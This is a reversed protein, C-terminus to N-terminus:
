PKKKEPKDEKGRLLGQLIDDVKEGSTKKIAQEVLAKIDVGTLDLKPKERTGVIPIAVRSGTLHRAYEAVPGRVGLRELLAARVPVSVVLDLTEDLGVSGYFKLDFEDTFALTFDDYALRGDKLQFDLGGVSVAHDQQKDLGGLALLEALLGDPRVKMGVLDLRGRGAGATKLTEGLPLVVDQVDLRATGEVRTLHLFIPNIRSLLSTSLERTVAVDELISLKRDVSFVPETERLSLSGGLNVKGQSTPIATEALTVRGNRLTPSLRAAGLPVGYVEASEWGVDLGTIVKRYPPALKPQNALGTIEFRSTSRGTVTITDATAPALEHLLATLEKWSADYSGSLNLMRHTKYRDVTGAIEASFLKSTVRTKALTLKEEQQDVRADYEFQLRQERVAKEGVGVELQDIGGRGALALMPGKTSFTTNVSLRGAIAPPEEMGTLLAVARLCRALDAAGELKGNVVLHAGSQWRVDTATLSAAGSELQARAASVDSADAALTAESWSVNVDGDLLAQGGISLKHAVLRGGSTIPTQGGTRAAGAQLSLTGAYRGLEDLGLAAARSSLFGLEAREINLDTQFAAQQLDYWGTATAVVEGNLDAKAETAAFRQAKGDALSLDGALSVSARPLDFRRGTTAYQVQDATVEATVGVHKDDTRTLAVAGAVNGAMEFSDLEFVQGLEGKLKTLDGQFDARLNSAAGSATIGAFSSKLEARQLELGKGPELHADFGLSVPELQATRQGSVATLERLEIAGRAAPKRGGHASITTIELKGGTIQQGPRVHLLGPMAKELAALDVNAQAEVSFEPLDIPQGTLIASLIDDLSLGLPQDSFEYSIDAVASGAEGALNAQVTVRAPTLGLQGTLTLDIPAGQGVQEGAQLDRVSTAFEAQLNGDTLTADINLNATAALGSDPAAVALLPGVEVDADTRLQITGSAADIGLEGDSVLGRLAVEAAIQGGDALTLALKGAVTVLSELELEGNLDLM